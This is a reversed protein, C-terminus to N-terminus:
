FFDKKKIIRGGIYLMVATLPICVALCQVANVGSGAFREYRLLMLHNFILLPSRLFASSVLVAVPVIFGVVANVKVSLVCQIAAATSMVIFSLVALGLVLGAANVGELMLGSYEMQFETNIGKIEAGSFAAFMLVGLFSVAIFAASELFIGGMCAMWWQGRSKKRLLIQQQYKSFSGSIRKGTVAFFYIFYLSWLAPINFPQQASRVYPLEGKYFEAVYDAVSLGIEEGRMQGLAQVNMQFFRCSILVICVPILYKWIHSASIAEKIKGM